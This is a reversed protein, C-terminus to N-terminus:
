LVVQHMSSSGYRHRPNQSRTSFHLQSGDCENPNSFVIGQVELKFDPLILPADMIIQLFKKKAVLTITYNQVWFLSANWLQTSALFLSSICKSLFPFYCLLLLFILLCPLVYLGGPASDSTSTATMSVKVYTLLIFKQMPWIHCLTQTAVDQYQIYGKTLNSIRLM